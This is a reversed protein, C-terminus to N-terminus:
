SILSVIRAQTLQNSRKMQSKYKYQNRGRNLEFNKWLSYTDRPVCAISMTINLTTRKWPALQADKREAVAIYCWCVSSIFHIPIGTTASSVMCINWLILRLVMMLVRSHCPSEFFGCPVTSKFSPYLTHARTKMDTPPGAKCKMIQKFKFCFFLLLFYDSRPHHSGWYTHIATPQHCQFAQAENPITLLVTLVNACALAYFACVALLCM